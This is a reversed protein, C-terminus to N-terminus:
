KRKWTTSALVGIDGEHDVVRGTNPRYIEVLLYTKNLFEDFNEVNGRVFHSDSSEREGVADVVPTRKTEVGM